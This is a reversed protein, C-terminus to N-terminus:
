GIETTKNMDLLMIGGGCTRFPQDSPISSVEAGRNAGMSLALIHIHNGDQYIVEQNERHVLRPTVCFVDPDALMVNLLPHLCGPLLQIDNDPLFVHTGRAVRLGANRVQGVNGSNYGLEVIRVDTCASKLWRVSDDTSGDDAVIIELFDMPYQRLSSILAPLTAMGNFNVIVVSLRIDADVNSHASVFEHEAIRPARCQQM